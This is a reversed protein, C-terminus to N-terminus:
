CFRKEKSAYLSPHSSAPNYETIWADLDTQLEDISRYIRVPDCRTGRMDSNAQLNHILVTLSLMTFELARGEAGQSRCRLTAWLGSATHRSNPRPAAFLILFRITERFFTVPGSPTAEDL